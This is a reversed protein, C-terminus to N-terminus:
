QSLGCSSLDTYAKSSVCDSVVKINSLVHSAKPRSPGLPLSSSEVMSDFSWVISLWFIDPKITQPYSLWNLIGSGMTKVLPIMGAFLDCM